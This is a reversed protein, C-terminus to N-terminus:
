AARCQSPGTKDEESGVKDTHGFIMVKGDPHKALEKELRKLDDVVSPRIFSSAFDFCVGKVMACSRFQKPPPPQKLVNLTHRKGTALSDAKFKAPILLKGKPKTDTSIIFNNAPDRKHCGLQDRLFRNIEDPDTTGWNFKAIDQWTMKRGAATEREAIKQLTDGDQPRLTSPTRANTM